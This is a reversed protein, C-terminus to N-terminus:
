RYAIEPLKDPVTAALEDRHRKMVPSDDLLEWRVRPVTEEDGVGAVDGLAGAIGRLTTPEVSM